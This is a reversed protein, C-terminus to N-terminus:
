MVQDCNVGGLHFNNNPRCDEVKSQVAVLLTVEWDVLRSPRGTAGAFTVSHFLLREKSEARDWHRSAAFNPDM